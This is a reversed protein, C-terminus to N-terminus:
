IATTSAKFHITGSYGASGIDSSLYTIQGADTVNFVVGADGNATQMLSWKSGSTADDDYVLTMTGVEAKGSTTSTSTRYVSYSIVASRNTGSDFLLGNVNQASTINNSISFTTELIDGPALLTGLVDTVAESWGSAEEAWNPDEGSTPYNYLTGNVVLPTSMKLNRIKYIEIWM